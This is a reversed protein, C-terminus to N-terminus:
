NKLNDPIIKIIKDDDKQPYGRGDRNSTTIYLAKDPGLVIDRIRGLEGKLYEKLVPPGNEKLIAQYLAQGRLGAFFISDAFTAAGAPAWTDVGSHLLPTQMNEKQEDGQIIPWGYNSGKKILNLEDLGSLIGSRGHETAWLRGKDDWAIGQPNRHGYSYVLNDFPNDPAPKGSDTTRLIKGALSSIDQALSPNQADGTTIYLFNDPGFKIRGGNHNVAGPIVDVIIKEDALKNNELKYRAVRNLTNNQNSAYTYYLYIYKNKEFDPHVAIGLLGGEGVHKVEEIKTITALNGNRDLMKLEGPRQTFLLEGDPLFALGWPIELNAAVISVPAEIQNKPVQRPQEKDEEKKLSFFGAILVLVIVAVVIKKKM